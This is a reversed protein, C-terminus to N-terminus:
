SFIIAPFYKYIVYLNTEDDTKQLWIHFLYFVSHIYQILDTLSTSERSLLFSVNLM